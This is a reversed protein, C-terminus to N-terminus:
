SLLGFAEDWIGYPSVGNTLGGGSVYPVATVGHADSLLASIVLWVQEGM